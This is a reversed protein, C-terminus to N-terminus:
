VPTLRKRGNRRRNRLIARGSKSSNRSLFGHQRKRRIKSPQYQRKMFDDCNKRAPFARGASALLGTFPARFLLLSRKPTLRPFVSFFGFVSARFELPNGFEFLWLWGSPRLTGRRRADARSYRLNNVQMAISNVQVTQCTQDTQLIFNQSVASQFDASCEAEFTRRVCRHFGPLGHNRAKRAESKRGTEFNPGNKRFQM